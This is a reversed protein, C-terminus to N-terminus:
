SDVRPDDGIAFRLYFIAKQIDEERKGKHLCRWIYKFANAICYQSVNEAGFASTMADICEIGGSNYHPPSNVLDSSPDGFLPHENPADDKM